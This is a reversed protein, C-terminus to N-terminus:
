DASQIGDQLKRLGTQVDIPGVPDVGKTEVRADGLDVVGTEQEVTKM